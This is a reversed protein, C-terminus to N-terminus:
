ENMSIKNIYNNIQTLYPKHVKTKTTSIETKYVTIHGHKKGKRLVFISHLSIECGLFIQALIKSWHAKVTPPAVLFSMVSISVMHAIFSKAAQQMRPQNIHSM